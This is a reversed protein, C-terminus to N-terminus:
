SKLYRKKSGFQTIQWMTWRIRLKTGFVFLKQDFYAFIPKIKLKQLKYKFTDGADIQWFVGVGNEKLCKLVAAGM